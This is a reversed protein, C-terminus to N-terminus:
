ALDQSSENCVGVRPLTTLLAEIRDSVNNHSLSDAWAKWDRLTQWTNIVLHTGLKEVSFLTEGTM